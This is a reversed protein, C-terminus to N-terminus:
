FMKRPPTASKSAEPTGVPSPLNSQVVSGIAEMNQSSVSQRHIPRDTLSNKRELPGRKTKISSTHAATSGYWDDDMDDSYEKISATRSSRTTSSSSVASQGPSGNTFSKKVENKDRSINIAVKGGLLSM